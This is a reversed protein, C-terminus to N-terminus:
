MAIAVSENPNHGRPPPSGVYEPEWPKYRKGSEPQQGKGNAKAKVHFMAPVVEIDTFVSMDIMDMSEFVGMIRGNRDQVIFCFKTEMKKKM